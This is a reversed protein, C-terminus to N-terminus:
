LLIPVGRAVHDLVTRYKAETKAAFAPDFPIHYERLEWPNGLSVFLVIYQRLGTLRMCEQMQAHYHPWRETFFELDM